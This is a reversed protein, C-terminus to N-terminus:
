GYQQAPRLIPPIKKKIGLPSESPPPVKPDDHQEPEDEFRQQQQRVPFSRKRADPRRKRVTELGAITAKWPSRRCRGSSKRIMTEKQNKKLLVGLPYLCQESKQKRRKGDTKAVM